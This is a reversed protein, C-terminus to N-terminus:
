RASREVLEWYEDESLRGAYYGGEPVYEFAGDAIADVDYDDAFEGLSVRVDAKVQEMDIFHQM